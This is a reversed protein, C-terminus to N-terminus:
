KVLLGPSIGFTTAPVITAITDNQLGGQPSALDGFVINLYLM